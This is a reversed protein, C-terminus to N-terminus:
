RSSRSIARPPTGACWNGKRSLGWRYGALAWGRSDRSPVASGRIRTRPALERLLGCVKTPGLSQRGAIRAHGGAPIRHLEQWVRPQFRRKCDLPNGNPSNAKSSAPVIESVWRRFSDTGACNRERYEGCNLMMTNEACGSLVAPVGREMAAVLVKGLPSKAITYGIKM